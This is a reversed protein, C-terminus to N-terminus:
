PRDLRPYYLMIVLGILAFIGALPGVLLVGMFGNVDNGWRSMAGSALIIAGGMSAKWAFGSLGNYLAERRQGSRAEDYDIVQGMMPTMMVYIIGQGIGCWAFLAAGLLTKTKASIAMVGVPYMMPLGSAIIGIALVLMWKVGLRKSLFPIFLLSLMATLIFPAMLVTVTSEDGGLALEAWSPLARQAALFGTTFFFFAIAYIMFPYNSAADKLGHLVAM